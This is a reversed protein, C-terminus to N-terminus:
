KGDKSYQAPMHLIHCSHCSKEGILPIIGGAGVLDGANIKEGLTDILGLVEDDVYYKRSVTRHCEVCVEKMNYFMSKFLNFSQQAGSKDGEMINASMGAIGVDLYDFKGEAFPLPGEPTNIKINRFNKWYYKNWVPTMTDKHCDTCTAEVKKMNENVGDIDGKRLAKGIDEVSKPIYYGRWQPVLESSEAYNQKFSEYSKKANEMDNQQINAKIGGLSTGMEYMKILYLPPQTQYYRDLSKPLENANSDRNDKNGSVLVLGTGSILIAILVTVMFRNKM